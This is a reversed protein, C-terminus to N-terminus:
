RVLAALGRAYGEALAEPMRQRQLRRVNAAQRAHRAPDFGVALDRLVQRLEAEDRCLFGIDGAGEFFRELSRHRLAVVPKGAAVADLLTGSAALDYYRGQAPVCVYHLAQLRSLYVERPLHSEDPPDTLGTMPRGAFDRHLPGVHHLSLGPLGGLEAALRLWLDFGRGRTAIGLTGIRLPRAPLPVEPLAAGAPHPMVDVLGALWPALEVLAEAVHHELALLRLRPGPCRRLAAMLDICRALPNRSRWGERLANVEGHLPVQVPPGGMRQLLWAALMASPSSGSVVMAVARGEHAAHVQRLRALGHRIRPFSSHTVGMGDEHLAIPHFTLGAASDLLPRVAEIHTPDAWFAVQRGPFGLAITRLFAANFPAHRGHRNSLEVVAIPGPRQMM